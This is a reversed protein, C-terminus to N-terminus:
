LSISFTLKGASQFGLNIAWIAASIAMIVKNKDWIAFSSLGM